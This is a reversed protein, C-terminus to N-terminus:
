VIISVQEKLPLFIETKEADVPIDDKGPENQSVQVEVHDIKDLNSPTLTPCTGEFLQFEGTPEPDEPIGRLRCQLRKWEELGLQNEPPSLRHASHYDDPDSELSSNCLQDSESETSSSDDVTVILPPQLSTQRSPAQPRQSSRTLKTNPQAPKM